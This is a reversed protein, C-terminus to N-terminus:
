GVRTGRINRSESMKIKQMVVNAVDNPDLNSGNLAVSVQYNYVTGENENGQTSPMASTMNMKPFVQSNLNSLMPGYSEVVSKRIVFEGPTLLAPVKDTMGVGPVMSGYAYKKMMGGYNMMRPPPETSGLSSIIGGFNKGPNKLAPKKAAAAKQAVALGIGGNAGKGSSIVPTPTKSPTTTPVVGGAFNLVPAPRETVPAAVTVGEKEKRYNDLM